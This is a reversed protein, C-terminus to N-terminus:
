ASGTDINRFANREQAEEYPLFPFLKRVFWNTAPLRHRAWLWTNVPKAGLAAKPEAATRGFSIRRCGLALADEVVCQLLRLYIPIKRNAEYDMGVYYALATGDTERITSIFGLIESENRVVSFRVNDPFCEALRSFYGPPLAATRVSAQQEVQSYLAHLEADHAAIDTLKGVRMGADEVQRRIRKLRGRYKTNLLALYDDFSACDDPLELVMDPDAKIRRYSYNELANAPGAEDGKFDKVLIFDFQGTLREARRIRYLAEAVGAWALKEDAEPRIAVGHMGSSVLNGCVLLKQDLGKLARHRLENWTKQLTNGNDPEDFLQEAHWNFLQVAICAVPENEDFILAYRHAVDQMGSSELMELYARSIFISGHGAVADWLGGDLFSISDSIAFQLRTPSHRIRHRQWANPKDTM